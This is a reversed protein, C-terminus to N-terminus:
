LSSIERLYNRPEKLEIAEKIAELQYEHYNWFDVIRLAEMISLKSLWLMTKTFIIKSTCCLFWVVSTPFYKMERDYVFEGHTPVYFGLLKSIIPYINVKMDAILETFDYLQLIDFIDNKPINDSLFLMEYFMLNGMSSDDLGINSNRQTKSISTKNLSYLRLIDILNEAVPFVLVNDNKLKPRRLSKGRTLNILSSLQEVLGFTDNMMFIYQKNADAIKFTAIISDHTLGCIVVRKIENWICNMGNLVTTEGVETKLVQLKDIAISNRFEFENRHGSILSLAIFAIFGLNDKLSCYYMVYNLFDNITNNENLECTCQCYMHVATAFSLRDMFDYLVINTEGKSLYDINNIIESIAYVDSVVAHACPGVVKYTQEILKTLTPSEDFSTKIIVDPYEYENLIYKVANLRQMLDFIKFHYRWELTTDKEWIDCQFLAITVIVQIIDIRKMYIREKIDPNDLSGFYDYYIVPMISGVDFVGDKNAGFKDYALETIYHCFGFYALTFFKDVPHITDTEIFEYFSFRALGDEYEDELFVILNDNIDWVRDISIKPYDANIYKVIKDFLIKAPNAYYTMPLDIVHSYRCLTFGSFKSDKIDILDGAKCIVKCLTEIEETYEPEYLVKKEESM